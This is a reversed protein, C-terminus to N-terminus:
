LNRPNWEFGLGDLEEFREKTLTSHEGRRSLKLQRRQCKVWVALQRDEYSTPVLCNGHKARFKKLAELREYWAANHSDWVFRMAELEQQRADTLTSHQGLSKLKYQYRQRKIWQALQQNPPYSHPVLCHGHKEHFEILDEFRETWQDAQYKRFRAGKKTHDNTRSQIEFNEQVQSASIHSAMALSTTHNLEHDTNLKSEKASPVSIHVDPSWGDEGCFPSQSDAQRKLSHVFEDFTGEDQWDEQQVEDIDSPSCGMESGSAHISSGPSTNPQTILISQVGKPGIPTPEFVGDFLGGSSLVVDEVDEIIGLINSLSDQCNQNAKSFEDDGQVSKLMSTCAEHETKNRSTLVATYYSLPTDQQCPSMIQSRRCCLFSTDAMM